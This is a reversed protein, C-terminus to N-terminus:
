VFTTGFEFSDAMVFTNQKKLVLTALTYKSFYHCLFRDKKSITMSIGLFKWKSGPSGKLKNRLISIFGCIFLNYM